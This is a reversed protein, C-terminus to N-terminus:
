IENMGEAEAQAKEKDQRIQDLKRTGPEPGELLMTDMVEQMDSVFIINLDALATKSWVIRCDM